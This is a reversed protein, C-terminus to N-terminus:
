SPNEKEDREMPELLERVRDVVIDLEDELGPGAAPFPEGFKVAAGRSELKRHIRTIDRPFGLLDRGLIGRFVSSLGRWPRKQATAALRRKWSGPRSPLEHIALPRGLRAVEVLMSVRDGTVVFRDAHALLGLYPNDSAHPSWVFLESGEPLRERLAEVVDPPTRRSTTVYLSGGERRTLDCLCRALDAAVGEDMRFPQTPGGVFVATLPRPMADFRAAWADRAAALRDGDVEMLPFDLALVRPSSPMIYHCPVVALDFHNLMRKPRGIVALRTRGGSQQKIWLAAMSPRSGSTLILDPWPPALDDSAQHDLHDVSPRFVPKGQRFEPLFVLTKEVYARGLATAVRRVQANDGLKDGLVLWIRPQPNDAASEM